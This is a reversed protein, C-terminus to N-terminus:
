KKGFLRSFLGKKEGSDDEASQNKTMEKNRSKGETKEKKVREKLTAFYEKYTEYFEDDKGVAKLVSKEIKDISYKKIDEFFSDEIANVDDLLESGWLESKATCFLKIFRSVSEEDEYDINLFMKKVSEQSDRIIHYTKVLYEDDLLMPNLEKVFTNVDQENMVISEKDLYKNICMQKDDINGYLMDNIFVIVYSRGAPKKLGSRWTEIERALRTVSQDMSASDIFACIYDYAHEEADAGLDNEIMVDVMKCMASANKMNKNLFADVFSFLGNESVGFKDIAKIAYRLLIDSDKGANLLCILFQEYKELTATEIELMAGCVIEVKADLLTCSIPDVWKLYDQRAGKIALDFYLPRNRTLELMDKANDINSSINIFLMDILARNSETKFWDPETTGTEFCRYLLRFIYLSQDSNWESAYDTLIPVISIFGSNLTQRMSVTITPYVKNLFDVKDVDVNKTKIEFLYKDLLFTEIKEKLSSVHDMSIILKLLSLNNGEDTDYFKDYVSYAKESLYQSWKFPEKEYAKFLRLYKLVDSYVWTDSDSNVDLLYKYADFLVYLDNAKAGFQLESLEELVQNFDMIDENMQAVSDFYQLETDANLYEDIAKAQGDLVIFSANNMGLEISSSGQADPHIGVVMAYYDKVGGSEIAERQNAKIIRGSKDRYLTNDVSLNASAAINTNFPITKALYIPLSFELTAVWMEVNEPIDKIVVFRRNVIPKSMESIVFRVMKKACSERGDAIFSHVKEHTMLAKSYNIECENLFDLPEDNDHYYSNESQKSANWCDLGFILCPYNDAQGILYQKIHTGPRHKKGNPRIDDPHYPRVYDQGLISIGSPNYYYEYSYFLGTSNSGMERAANELEVIKDVFVPDYIFGERLLGKSYNHIAYGEENIVKGDSLSDTQVDLFERRPKCRTYILQQFM